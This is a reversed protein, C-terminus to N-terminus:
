FEVIKCLGSLSLGIIVREFCAWFFFYINIGKDLKSAIVDWIQPLIEVEYALLIEM